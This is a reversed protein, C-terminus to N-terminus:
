AEPCLFNYPAQNKNFLTYLSKPIMGTGETIHTTSQGEFSRPSINGREKLFTTLKRKPTFNTVFIFTPCRLNRTYHTRLKECSTYINRALHREGKRHNTPFLIWEDSQYKQKVYMAPAVELDLYVTFYGFKGDAILGTWFLSQALSESFRVKLSPM